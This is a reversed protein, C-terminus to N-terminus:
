RTPTFQMNVMQWSGATKICVATFLVTNNFATGQISGKASWTGSVVAANDNYTRPNLGSVNATEVIVFGGSLAQTILDKDVAQGDFSIISFDNSIVKGMLNADEDLMAKFFSNTCDTPSANPDSQGFSLTTILCLIAFILTKKM